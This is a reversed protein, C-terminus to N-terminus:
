TKQFKISHAIYQGTYLYTILDEFYHEHVDALIM